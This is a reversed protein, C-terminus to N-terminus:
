RGGSPSFVGPRGSRPRDHLGELREYFFRKRWKSVVQRALDLRRGIEDNPVGEAALLVLRARIVDCYPSTYCGATHELQCHEKETLVVPYPSTRPM